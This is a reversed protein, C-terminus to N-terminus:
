QHKNLYNISCCCNTGEKKSRKKKTRERRQHRERKMLKGGNVKPLPTVDTSTVSSTWSLSRNRRKPGSACVSGSISTKDDKRRRRVVHDTDVVTVPTLTIETQQPVDSDTVASVHEIEVGGASNSNTLVESLEKHKKLTVRRDM